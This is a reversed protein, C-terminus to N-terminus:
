AIRQGHAPYHARPNRSHYHKGHLEAQSGHGPEASVLRIKFSTSGCNVALVNM